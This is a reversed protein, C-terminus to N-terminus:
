RECQSVSEANGVVIGQVNAETEGHRVLYLRLITLIGDMNEMSCHKYHIQCSSTRPQKGQHETAIV